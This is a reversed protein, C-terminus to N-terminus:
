LINGGSPDTGNSSDPPPGSPESPTVPETPETPESPTVPETPETPTIPQTPTTVQGGPETPETTTTTTTTTPEQPTSPYYPPLLPNGCKCRTVPTEPEVGTTSPATAETPPETVETPPETVETSPENPEGNLDQPPPGSMLVATGKELMSPRAYAVGDHLGHNTVMTDNELVKPELTEVYEPVSEEPIDLVAAWARMAEPRNQLEEVFKDKDCVQDDDTDVPPTFADPGIEGSPEEIFGAETAQYAGDGDSGSDTVLAVGMGAAAVIGVAGVIFGAMAQQRPSAM